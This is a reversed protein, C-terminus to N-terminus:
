YSIRKSIYSAFEFNPRELHSLHGPTALDSRVGAFVRETCGRDEENVDDLLRKLEAFNEKGQPDDVFEKALGGGFYIRVKGPATPYLSLYWFYGPTLTVLMSPYIAFLYTTFRREGSLRANDPHAVSLYFEEVKQLTHYNFATRGELCEIDDVKSMGGITAAHCVPLHYSEMFNEALIKWNTNWEHVEFFAQAYNEMEYDGVMDEIEGLVKRAPPVDPNLSVLVWGLWEECRIEPLRYCSRDFGQNRSMGPAGRLRGDLGYTWGHYPCVITRTNGKGTLLVSMRHRCVNAQARLNGNTERVVMIPQGALESTFYDGPNRLGDSRGICFWEKRFINQIELDLFEESVYVSKPMSRAREFPVAVCEALESAPNKFGIVDDM